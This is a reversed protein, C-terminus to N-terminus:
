QRLFIQRTIIKKEVLMNIEAGFFIILMCSYVWILAFILSALSGFMSAYNGYNIYISYIISFGYWGVSAVLAGPLQRILPAKRSPIFKYAFMFFLTLFAPFFIWKIDIISSLISSIYPFFQATFDLLRNGFIVFILMAMLIIIFFLAQISAILRWVIFNRKEEVDLIANFGKALSMFGKGAAWLTGIASVSTLTLTSSHYMDTFMWVLDNRFYAPVVESLFHVIVSYEIPLFHILSLLLAVFPFFSLIIFYSSQAAYGSLDDRKIKDYAETIAFLLRM